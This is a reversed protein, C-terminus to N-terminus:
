RKRKRKESSNVERLPQVAPPSAAGCATRIIISKLSTQSPTLDCVHEPEGRATRMTLTSIRSSTRSTWVSTGPSSPVTPLESCRWPIT